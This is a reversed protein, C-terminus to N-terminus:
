FGLIELYKALQEEVYGAILAVLPAASKGKTTSDLCDYYRKRDSFKVDIPIISFM